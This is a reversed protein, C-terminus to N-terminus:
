GGARDVELVVRGALMVWCCSHSSELIDALPDNEPNELPIAIMDAKKDPTISGIAEEWDLAKAGNITAMQFLLSPDLEPFSEHLFRMEDLLSLSHNSALSDTGLCVNIGSDLMKQFPHNEHGFFYHTRPCFVVSHSRGALAELEEDTIYNVHALLVSQGSLDLDLFYRVPRKGPLELSGDWKGIENLYNRWAGGGSQLFEIEDRTEALHTTVLLGHESALSAASEYLAPGVSYPAHPSLGLKLLDGTGTECVWEHLDGMARELGMTLGFTEGFCVKRIPQNVLTKWAQHYSSIDAVTTVGGGLSERCADALVESLEGGWQDRLQTLRRVWDTFEGEYPVQDKFVSLELHTHANVLGPLLSCDPFDLRECDPYQGVLKDASGVAVIRDGDVVVAGDALVALPSCVLYRASLLLM